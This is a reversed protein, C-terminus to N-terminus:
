PSREALRAEIESTMEKLSQEATLKAVVRRDKPDLLLVFGTGPNAEVVSGLGLASGLLQAQHSTSLNTRDLTVFLVPKGDLKNRLDEFVPGMKKCSGCWDAHFKVALLNPAAPQASASSALALATLLAFIWPRM